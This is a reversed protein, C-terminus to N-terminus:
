QNKFDNIAEIIDEDESDQMLCLSWQLLEFSIMKCLELLRRYDWYDSLEISYTANRKIKNSIWDVPFQKICDRAIMISTTNQPKCTWSLLCRVIGDSIEDSEDMIENVFLYIPKKAIINIDDAIRMEIINM